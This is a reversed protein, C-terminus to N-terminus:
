LQLRLRELFDAYGQKRWFTRALENKVSVNVEVYPIGLSRFWAHAAEM